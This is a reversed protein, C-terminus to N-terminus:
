WSRYFLRRSNPFAWNRVAVVAGGCRLLKLTIRLGIKVRAGTVLFVRGALDCKQKRKEWNLSACPPCLQAYFLHLTTFRAKCTYCQRPQHLTTPTETAIDDQVNETEDDDGDNDDGWQASKGFCGDPVGPIRVASTARTEDDSNVSQNGLAFTTTPTREKQLDGLRALRASRMATKNQADRDFAKEQMKRRNLDRKSQKSARFAKPDGGYHGLQNKLGSLLPQLAVRLQKHRPHHFSQHETDTTTPEPTPGGSSEAAASKDSADSSVGVGGGLARLVKLCIALEADDFGRDLDFAGPTQDDLGLEAMTPAGARLSSLRHARKKKM